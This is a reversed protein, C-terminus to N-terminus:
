RKGCNEDDKHNARQCEQSRYCLNNCNSHQKTTTMHQITDETELETSMVSSNM